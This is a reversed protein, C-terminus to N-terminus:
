KGVISVYILNSIRGDSPYVSGYYAYKTKTVQGDPLVVSGSYKCHYGGYSYTPYAKELYFYRNAIAQEGTHNHDIEIGHEQIFSKEEEGFLYGPVGLLEEANQFAVSYGLDSAQKFLKFADSYTGMDSSGLGNAYLWALNNLAIQQNEGNTECANKYWYIAESYNGAMKYNDAVWIQAYSDGEKARSLYDKHKTSEDIMVSGYYNVQNQIQNISSAQMQIDNTIDALTITQQSIKNSVTLMALMLGALAIVLELISVLGQHKSYWLEFKSKANVATNNRKNESQRSM